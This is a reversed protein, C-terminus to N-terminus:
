EAVEVYTKIALEEKERHQSSKLSRKASELNDFVKLSPKTSSGWSKALEGSNKYALAYLKM